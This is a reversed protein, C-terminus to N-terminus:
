KLLVNCSYFKKSTYLKDINTFYFLCHSLTYKDALKKEFVSQMKSAMTLNVDTVNRFISEPIRYVIMDAQKGFNWLAISMYDSLDLSLYM